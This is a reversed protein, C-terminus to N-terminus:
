DVKIDTYVTEGWRTHSTGAYICETTVSYIEIEDHVYWDSILTGIKSTLEDVVKFSKIYEEKM